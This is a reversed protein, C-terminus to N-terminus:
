HNKHHYIDIDSTQKHTLHNNISIACVNVDFSMLKVDVKRWFHDSIRLITLKQQTFPWLVMKLHTKHHNVDINATQYHTLPINVSIACM